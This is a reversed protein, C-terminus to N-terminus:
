RGLFRNFPKDLLKKFFKMCVGVGVAAILTGERVGAIEGLMVLSTVVAIAVVSCDFIVKSTHIPIGFRKSIAVAGGEAPLPMVDASVYLFVGLGIIVVGFLMFLLQVIYVGGTDLPALLTTAGSVLVSFASSGVLQLLNTAKFDKGLLILQFVLFASQVLFTCVGIDIATALNIVYPTTSVPSVGLNSEISFAIGISVCTLGVIYAIIQQISVLKTKM